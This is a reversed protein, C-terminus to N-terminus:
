DQGIDLPADEIIKSSDAQLTDAASLSLIKRGDGIPNDQAIAKEINVHSHILLIMLLCFVHKM